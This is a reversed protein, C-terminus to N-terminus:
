ANHRLCKDKYTSTVYFRLASSSDPFLYTTATNAVNYPISAAAPVIM